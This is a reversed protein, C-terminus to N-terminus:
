FHVWMYMFVVHICNSFTTPVSYNQLSSLLSVHIDTKQNLYSAVATYSPVTSLVPHLLYPASQIVNAAEQVDITEKKKKKLYFSNNVNHGVSYVNSYSWLVRPNPFFALSLVLINPNLDKVYLKNDIYMYISWVGIEDTFYSKYSRSPM